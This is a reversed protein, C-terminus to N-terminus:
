TLEECRATRPVGDLIPISIAYVPSFIEVVIPAIDPLGTVSAVLIVYVAVEVVGHNKERGNGARCNPLGAEGPTRGAAVQSPRIRRRWRLCICNGLTDDTLASLM